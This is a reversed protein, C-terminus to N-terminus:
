LKGLADASLEQIRTKNTEEIQDLDRKLINFEVIKQGDTTKKVTVTGQKMADNIRKAGRLDTDETVLIRIVVWFKEVIPSGFLSAKEWGKFLYIDHKDLYEEFLMAYNFLTVNGDLHGIVEDADSELLLFEGLSEDDENMIVEILQNYADIDRM